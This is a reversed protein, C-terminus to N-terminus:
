SFWIGKEDGTKVVWNSVVPVIGMTLGVVGPVVLGITFGISDGGAGVIIVVVGGAGAATM